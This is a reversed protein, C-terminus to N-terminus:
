SLYWTVMGDQSPTRTKTIPLHKIRISMITLKAEMINWTIKTLPFHLAAPREVSIM